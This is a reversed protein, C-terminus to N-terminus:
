SAVKKDLKHRGPMFRMPGMKPVKLTFGQFPKRPGGDRTVWSESYFQVENVEEGPAGDTGSVVFYGVWRGGNAVWLRSGTCVGRSIPLSFTWFCYRGNVLKGDRRKHELVETRMSVGIDVPLRGELAKRVNKLARRVRKSNGAQDSFSGSSTVHGPM